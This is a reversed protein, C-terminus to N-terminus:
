IGTRYKRESSSDQKTQDKRKEDQQGITLDEVPIPDVTRESKFRDFLSEKDTPIGEPNDRKGQQRISKGNREFENM